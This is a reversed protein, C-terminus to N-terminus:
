YRVMDRMGVMGGTINPSRVTKLLFGTLKTESSDGKQHKRLIQGESVEVSDGQSYFGM